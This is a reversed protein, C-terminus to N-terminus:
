GAHLDHHLLPKGRSRGFLGHHPTRTRRLTRRRRKGPRHPTVPSWEALIWGPGVKSWPVASLAAEARDRGGPDGFGANGTHADRPREVERDCEFDTTSGASAASACGAAVLGITAVAGAFAM